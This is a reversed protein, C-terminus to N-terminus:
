PLYLHMFIKFLGKSILQGKRAAALLRMLRHFVTVLKITTSGKEKFFLVSKYTGKFFQAL